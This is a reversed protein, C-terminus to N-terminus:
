EKMSKRCLMLSILVDVIFRPIDRCVRELLLHRNCEIIKRIRSYIVKRKKKKKEKRLEIKEEKRKKKKRKKSM